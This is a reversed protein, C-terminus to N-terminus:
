KLFVVEEVGSPLMYTEMQDQKSKVLGVQYVLTQTLSPILHQQVRLSIM